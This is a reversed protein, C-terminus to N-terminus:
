SRKGANLMSSLSFCRQKWMEAFLKLHDMMAEAKLRRSQAARWEDPFLVSARGKIDADTIAKSREKRDKENQLDRNAAERMAELVPSMELEFREFEARAVVYLRHARRANDEAANLAAQLNGPTLADTLRLAEELEAHEADPDPLDFVREQIKMWPANLLPFDDVSIDLDYRRPPPASAGASSEDTPPKPAPEKAAAARAAGAEVIRQAKSRNQPATSFLAEVAPSTEKTTSTRRRMAM